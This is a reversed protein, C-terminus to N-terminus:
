QESKRARLDDARETFGKRELRAVRADLRAAAREERAGAPVASCAMALAVVWGLFTWGLFLNIVAISGSNPHHRQEAVLWPLCYIVVILGLIVLAEGAGMSSTEM